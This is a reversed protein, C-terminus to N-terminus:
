AAHPVQAQSGWAVSSQYPIVASTQCVGWVVGPGVALPALTFNNVGVSTNFLASTYLVTMPASSAGTTLYSSNLLMLCVQAAARAYVSFSTIWGSALPLDTNVQCTSPTIDLANTSNTVPAGILLPASCTPSAPAAFLCPVATGVVLVSAAYARTLSSYQTSSGVACCPIVSGITQNARVYQWVNGYASSNAFYLM